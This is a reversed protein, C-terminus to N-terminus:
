SNEKAREKAVLYHNPDKEIGTVYLEKGKAGAFIPGSGCCPDLVRDGPHAVMDLLQAMLDAPKEAAHVKDRVGPVHFVDNVLKAILRKGRSAFLICEYSYKPGYDPVPAHSQQGKSWILPRPWVNYGYEEYVKKWAEFFDYSCFMLVHSNTALFNPAARIVHETFEHASEKDDEYEHGLDFAQDGFKDAGVGYPPDFLLVEFSGSAFQEFHDIANGPLVTFYGSDTPSNGEGKREEMGALTARFERELKKKAVKAAKRLSTKAARQVEPDDKFADVLISNAVVTEDYSTAERGQLSAVEEATEKKSRRPEQETRVAHLKAIANAEEMPTLNVRRLNEELEIEFLIKPDDREITHVPIEPYEYTTDGYLYSSGETLALARLRREGAVVTGQCIVPAHILGVRLISDALDQLDKDKFEKRQRDGVSIDDAHMSTITM